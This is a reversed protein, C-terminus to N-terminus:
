DIISFACFRFYQNTIYTIVAPINNQIDFKRKCLTKNKLTCCYICISDLRKVTNKIYMVAKRAIFFVFFFQCTPSLLFMKQNFDTAM